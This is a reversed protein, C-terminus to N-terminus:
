SIDPEDDLVALEQEHPGVCGGGPPREDDVVHETALAPKSAQQEASLVAKPTSQRHRRVYLWTLIACVLSTTLVSGVGAPTQMMFTHVRMGHPVIDLASEHSQLCDSAAGVSHLDHSCAACM